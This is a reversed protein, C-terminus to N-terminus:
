DLAGETLIAPIINFHGHLRTEMITGGFTDIFFIEHSFRFNMFISFMCSM